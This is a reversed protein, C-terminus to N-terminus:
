KENAKTKEIINEKIKEKQNIKKFKQKLKKMSTDTIFFKMVYVGSAIKVIEDKNNAKNNEDEEDDDEDSDEKNSIEKKNISEERNKKNFDFEYIGTNEIPFEKILDIEQDLELFLKFEEYNRNDKIPIFSKKEKEPFEDRSKNGKILITKKKGYYYFSANLDDIKGPIEIRILLINNGKEKYVYYSFKPVYKTSISNYNGLEDIYSQQCKITVNSEDNRIKITKKDESIKLNNVKIEDETIDKSLKSFLNIIELPIDIKKRSKCSNYKQKILQITLDNYFVGAESNQRAMIYHDTGDNETYFIRDEYGKIGRVRKEIM